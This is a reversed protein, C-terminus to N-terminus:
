RDNSVLIFHFEDPVTSAANFIAPVLSRLRRRSSQSPLDEGSSPHGAEDSMMMGALVRVVVLASNSARSTDTLWSGADYSSFAASFMM